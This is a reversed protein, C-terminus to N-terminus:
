KTLFGIFKREYKVHKVRGDGCFHYGWRAGDEGLFEVYGKKVFPALFKAFEKNGYHKAHYVEFEITGDDNVSMDQLFGWLFGTKNKRKREVAKRFKKIKDKRIRVGIEMTSYYGM